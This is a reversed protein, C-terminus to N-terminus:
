ALPGSEILVRQGAQVFPWPVGHGIQIMRQINEIEDATIAEPTGGVGVINLVGHTTLVPLRNNPDFQCFVYGPFLPVDVKKMRDSWRRRIRFTPSYVTLGKSELNTAAIREFNSKI